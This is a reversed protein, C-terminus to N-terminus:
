QPGSRAAAKARADKGANLSEGDHGKFFAPVTKILLTMDKFFTPNSRTYESELLLRQEVTTKTGIAAVQWPGTLGPRVSLLDSYELPVFDSGDPDVSGALRPRPGVFSMDGKLINVLQPLEDIATGRLFRSFGDKRQDETLHQGAVNHDDLLSRFKIMGFPVANKGTRAVVHFPNSRFHVATALAVIAFVPSLVALGTASAGIDFARKLNM